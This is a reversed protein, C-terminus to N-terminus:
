QAPLLLVTLFVHQELSAAAELVRLMIQERYRELLHLQVLIESRVIGAPLISM